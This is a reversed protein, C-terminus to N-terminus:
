NAVLLLEFEVSVTATTLAVSGMFGIDCPGVFPGKPTVIAPSYGGLIGVEREVIKMTGSYPATVDNALPRQFFYIDTAKAADVFINKSLLYGTFGIPITYVGIQSQGLPFPLYPITSWIAGAGAEQVTLVDRHSGVLETAYSGSRSVYWRFLRLLPITLAVPTVGNTEVTQESVAWNADLGQFTIEQAGVGLASDLASNSVFELSTASTPTRYFTSTTVPHITTDIDSSGFKHVIFHGAVHGKAIELLLSPSFYSGDELSTHVGM